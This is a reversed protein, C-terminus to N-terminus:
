KWKAVYEKKRSWLRGIIGNVCLYTIRLSCIGCPYVECKYLGNKTFGGSVMVNFEGISVNLGKSM